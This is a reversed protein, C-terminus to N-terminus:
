SENRIIKTCKNNNNNSVDDNDNSDSSNNFHRMGDAVSSV